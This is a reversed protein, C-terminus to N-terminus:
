RLYHTVKQERIGVIRISGPYDLQEEIKVGIEQVLKEVEDDKVHVPNFFAMIERGAQMIFAKSVGPINSVLTELNSMREVFKEKSDVRAGPRSASIMDAATVIRTEPYLLPVDFHHAEATNVIVDHM